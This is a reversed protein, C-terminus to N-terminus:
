GYIDMLAEEFAEEFADLTEEDIEGPTAESRARFSVEIDYGMSDAIKVLTDLKFDQKGNELYSVTAQQVQAERALDYQSWGLEERTARIVRGIAGRLESYNNPAATM